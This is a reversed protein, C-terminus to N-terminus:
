YVIAWIIFVVALLGLILSTIGIVGSFLNGLVNPFSVKLKELEKAEFLRDYEIPREEIFEWKYIRGTFISYNMPWKTPVFHTNFFHITFIFGIALLAEESHIIRAVNIIWGPVFKATASPSWLLAGSIGIAVMGWFVALMDFKEYYAWHDFKPPPGQDVFWKGMAMFDEWDKKRPLFSNPGWLREKITKGRKKNFFAFHTCYALFIFFEVFIIFACIHHLLIAGEAGGIFHLMFKSWGADPFKIPLGTFALGFFAFICILHFLRDRLKFRTYTEGPNEIPILREPILHGERLQRQKEWYAKRWWLFTHGWYFVLTSLLLMFMFIRTWFLLPYKERNSLNPHAIYKAFNINVGNHCNSCVKTLNKENISSKPDGKPLINHAGHCDVCGASPSGLKRITGHLTEQYTEVAITTLNNRKMLEKDGHCKFCAKTYFERTELSYGRGLAHFLRTDHLGHCDSCVASDQNGKLIAKDHGSEVYDEMSHCSTCKNIIAAKSKDWKGLYHIDSHCEICDFHSKTHHVSGLYDKAEKQHCPSCDVKAPLYIRKTHKEFDIIDVHCSSCSNSGHVSNAYKMGDITRGHCKLCDTTFFPRQMNVNITVTRFEAFSPFAYFLIFLILFLKMMSENEKKIKKCPIGDYM